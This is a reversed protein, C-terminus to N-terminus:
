YTALDETPAFQLPNVFVSMVAVDNAAVAADLLSRHGAHLYGMTPVFGVTRRHAREDDLARRLSAITDHVKVTGDKMRRTQSSRGGHGRLRATGGAPDRRPAARDHRPRRARGARHACC